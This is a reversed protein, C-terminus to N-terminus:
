WGGSAGGGGSDGGGFSSGGSGGGSSWGSDSGSSSGGGWAWGESPDLKAFRRTISVTLVVAFVAIILAVIFALSGAALMLMLPGGGFILGFFIPLIKRSGIGVGMVSSGVLVFILSLWIEPGPKDQPQRNLDDAEAPVGGDAIDLIRNVAQTVGQGYRGQKFAPFLQEDLVRGALADPLIPEMGYGVEIRAKRDRMAVLLLIGNNKSRDGVGWKRFLKNTFDDIQGGELSRLVVVALKASDKQRSQVIRSQIAAIEEPKLVDAFDSVDGKPKLNSLLADSPIAAHATAAAFVTPLAAAIFLGFAFRSNTANSICPM